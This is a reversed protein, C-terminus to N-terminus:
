LTVTRERQIRLGDDGFYRGSEFNWCSHARPWNAIHDVYAALDRKIEESYPLSALQPLLSLVRETRQRHQDALWMLARDLDVHQQRMVVTIFNHNEDGAQLEKKYSVIDNDFIIVDVVNERLAQVLPHQHVDDPIDLALEAIAFCPLVGATGWRLAFHEEITRVRHEDRDKAQEVVAKAYDVWSAIFRRRATATAYTIARSWFDRTVEGVLSEGIPRPKEPHLLADMATNMFDSVGQADLADTHDDYLFFINICDCAVRYQDRDFTPYLLAALKGFNGREFIQQAAPSFANFSRIWVISEESVEPYHVNIRRPLPWDALTDPLRFTTTM